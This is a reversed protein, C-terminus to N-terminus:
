NKGFGRRQESLNHKGLTIGQKTTHQAWRFLGRPNEEHSRDAAYIWYVLAVAFFIDLAFFIGEIM